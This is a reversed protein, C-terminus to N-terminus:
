GAISMLADRIQYYAIIFEFIMRWIIELTLFVGLFFVLMLPKVWWPVYRDALADTAAKVKAAAPAVVSESVWSVVKGYLWWTLLGVVAPVIFAGLWYVLLIIYPTIFIKLTLFDLLLDM